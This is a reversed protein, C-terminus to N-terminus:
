LEALPNARDYLQRGPANVVDEQNSEQGQSRREAQSTPLRQCCFTWM